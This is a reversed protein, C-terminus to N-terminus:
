FICFGLATVSSPKREATILLLALRESRRASERCNLLEKAEPKKDCLRSKAMTYVCYGNQCLNDFSQSVRSVRLLSLIM